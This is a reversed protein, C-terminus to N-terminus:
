SATASLSESRRALTSPVLIGGLREVQEAIEKATKPKTLIDAPNITGLIKRLVLRRKKVGEQVWLFRVELHRVRGM